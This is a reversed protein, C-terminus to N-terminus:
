QKLFELLGRNVQDSHTWAIAHPGGDVVVLKLDKVLDPLLKGTKEFPLIPDANRPGGAHARRHEAPRGHFGHGLHPHVSGRRGSVRPLSTGAPRTPRNASWSAASCTTTTFNDLFGKMWAPIDQKATAVFGDFLSQPLGDPNDATQLLFPPIPSVLVGKAIRDSGYTGLYRTVEGSGMSHGVIVTDPLDLADLLAKLDAAFTDYDYGTATHSSKGFGRRNYAMVRHGAELLVPVQKDWARESLPYGDDPHPYGSRPGRLSAPDGSNEKGVTVFPM